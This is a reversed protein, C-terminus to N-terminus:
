VIQMSTHQAFNISLIGFVIMKAIGWVAHTFGYQEWRGSTNHIEQPRGSDPSYLDDNNKSVKSRELYFWHM